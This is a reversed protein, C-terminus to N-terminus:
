RIVMATTAGVFSGHSGSLPAPNILTLYWAVLPTIVNNFLIGEAYQPAPPFVPPTAAQFTGPPIAFAPPHSILGTMVSARVLAALAQPNAAGRLDFSAFRVSSDFTVAPDPLSAPPPSTATWSYTVTTNDELYQKIADGLVRLHGPRDAEDPFTNKNYDDLADRVARDMGSASVAM